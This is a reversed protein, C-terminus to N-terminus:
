WAKDQFILQVQEWLPYRIAEQYKFLSSYVPHRQLLVELKLSITIEEGRCIAVPLNYM